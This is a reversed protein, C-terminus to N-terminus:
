WGFWKRHCSILNGGMPELHSGYLTGFHHHSGRGLIHGHWLGPGVTVCLRGSCERPVPHPRVQRRGCTM